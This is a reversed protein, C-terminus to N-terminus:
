FRQAELLEIERQRGPQDCLVRRLRAIRATQEVQIQSPVLQAITAEEFQGGEKTRSVNQHDVIGFDQRGPNPGGLLGPSPHLQEKEARDGRRGVSSALDPFRQCPRRV